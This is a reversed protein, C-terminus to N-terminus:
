DPDSYDIEYMNDEFFHVRTEDERELKEEFGKLAMFAGFIKAREELAMKTHGDDRPWSTLLIDDYKGM